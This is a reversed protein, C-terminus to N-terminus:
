GVNASHIALSSPIRKEWTGFMGIGDITFLIHSDEVVRPNRVKSVREGSQAREWPYWDVVRDHGSGEKDWIINTVSLAPAGIVANYWNAGGTLKNAGTM